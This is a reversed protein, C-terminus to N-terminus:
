WREVYVQCACTQLASMSAAWWFIKVHINVRM